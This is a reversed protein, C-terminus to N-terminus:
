SSLGFLRFNESVYAGILSPPITELKSKIESIQNALYGESFVPLVMSNNEALAELQLKIQKFRDRDSENIYSGYNEEGFGEQRLECNIYARFHRREEMIDEQTKPLGFHGAEKEKEGRNFDISLGQFGPPLFYDDAVLKTLISFRENSSGPYEQNNFQEVLESIEKNQMYLHAIFSEAATYGGISDHLENKSRNKKALGQVSTFENYNKLTKLGREQMVQEFDQYPPNDTQIINIEPMQQLQGIELSDKQVLILTGTPLELGKMIGLGWWTDQRVMGEPSGNLKTMETFPAVIVLRCNEWSYKQGFNGTVPEVAHNLSFHVTTRLFYGVSQYRTPIFVKGEKTEPVYDTCHVCFISEEPVTESEETKGFAKDQKDIVEFFWNIYKERWQLYSLEHEERIAKIRPERKELNQGNKRDQMFSSLEQRVKDPDYSEMALLVYVADRLDQPRKLLEKIEEERSIEKKQTPTEVVENKNNQQVAEATPM